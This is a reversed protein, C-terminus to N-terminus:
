MSMIVFTVPESATMHGAYDHWCADTTCSCCLMRDTNPFGQRTLAACSAFESETTQMPAMRM